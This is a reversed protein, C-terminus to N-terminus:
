LWGRLMGKLRDLMGSTREEVEIPQGSSKGTQKAVPNPKAKKKQVPVIPQQQKKTQPAQVAVKTSAVPETPKAKQVVEHAAHVDNRCAV